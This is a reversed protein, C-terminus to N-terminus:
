SAYKFLEIVDPIKVTWGKRYMTLMKRKERPQIFFHMANFVEVPYKSCFAFMWWAAHPDVDSENDWVEEEFRKSARCRKPIRVLAECFLSVDVRVLNLLQLFVEHSILHKIHKFIENAFEVNFHACAVVLVDFAVEFFFPLDVYSKVIFYRDEVEVRVLATLLRDVTRFTRPGGEKNMMGEVIGDRLDTALSILQDSAQKQIGLKKKLAVMDDRQSYGSCVMIFFEATHNLLTTEEDPMDKLRERIKQLAASDLEINPFDNFIELVSEKVKDDNKQKGNYIHRFRHPIAEKDIVTLIRAVLPCMIQFVERTSM